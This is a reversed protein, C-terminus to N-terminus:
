ASPAEKPRRESLINAILLICTGLCTLLVLTLKRRDREGALAAAEGAVTFHRDQLDHQLALARDLIDREFANLKTYNEFTLEARAAENLARYSDNVTKFEFLGALSMEALLARFPFAKDLLNLQYLKAVIGRRRTEDAPDLAFLTASQVQTNFYQVQTERLTAIRQDIRRLEAEKAEVQAGLADVYFFQGAAGILSLMFGVVIAITKPRVRRLGAGIRQFISGAM